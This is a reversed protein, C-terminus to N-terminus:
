TFFFYFCQFSSPFIYSLQHVDSLSFINLPISASVSINTLHTSLFSMISFSPFILFIPIHLMFVSHSPPLSLFPNSPSHMNNFFVKAVFLLVIVWFCPTFVPQFISSWDIIVVALHQEWCDVKNIVSGLDLIRVVTRLWYPNSGHNERLDKSYVTGSQTLCRWRSLPHLKPGLQFCFTAKVSVPGPGNPSIQASLTM